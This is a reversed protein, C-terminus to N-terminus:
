PGRRPATRRPHTAEAGCRFPTAPPPPGPTRAVQGSPPRPSPAAAPPPPTPADAQPGEAWRRLPQVPAVEQQRAVREARTLPQEIGGRERSSDLWVPGRGSEPANALREAFAALPNSDDVVRQAARPGLPSGEAGASGSILSGPDSYSMLTPLSAVFDNDPELDTGEGWTAVVEDAAAPSAAAIVVGILLARKM